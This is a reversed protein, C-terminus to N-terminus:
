DMQSHFSTTYRSAIGFYEHLRRAYAAYHHVVNDSVFKKPMWLLLVPVM